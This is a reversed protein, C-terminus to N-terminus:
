EYFMHQRVHVYGGLSYIGSNTHGSDFDAHLNTLVRSLSSGRSGPLGSKATYECSELGAYM